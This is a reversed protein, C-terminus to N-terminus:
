DVEVLNVPLGAAEMREVVQRALDDPEILLAEGNRVPLCSSRDELEVRTQLGLARAREVLVRMEINGVPGPLEVTTAGRLRAMAERASLSGLSPDLQRVRRIEDVTPGQSLMVWVHWTRHYTKRIRWGSQSGDWLFAFDDLGAM